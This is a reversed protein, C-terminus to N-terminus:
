INEYNYDLRFPLLEYTIAPEGGFVVKFLKARTEFVQNTQSVTRFLLELLHEEGDNFVRPPFAALMQLRGLVYSGNRDSRGRGDAGTAM